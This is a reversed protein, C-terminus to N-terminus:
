HNFINCIGRYRKTALELLSECGDRFKKNPENEILGNLHHILNRLSGTYNKSIGTKKNIDSLLEEDKM